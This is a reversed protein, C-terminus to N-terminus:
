VMDPFNQAVVFQSQPSGFSVVFISSNFPHRVASAPLSSSGSAATCSTGASAGSSGCSSGAAGAAPDASAAGTGSAAIADISFKSTSLAM